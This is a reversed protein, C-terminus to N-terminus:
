DVSSLSCSYVNAWCNLAVSRSIQGCRRNNFIDGFLSRTNRTQTTLIPRINSEYELNRINSREIRFNTAAYAFIARINEKMDEEAFDTEPLRKRESKVIFYAVDALSSGM